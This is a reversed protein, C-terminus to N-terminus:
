GNARGEAVPGAFFKEPDILVLLRDPLKGLGWIFEVGEEVSFSPPEISDANLNIVESVKDVVLGIKEQELDLLIIREDGPCANGTNDIRLLKSSDVVPIINGRLNIMGSVYPLAKPIRTSQQQIIIEQVFNVPIAYEEDGLSFVVVQLEKKGDNLFEEIM